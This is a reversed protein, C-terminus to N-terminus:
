EEDDDYAPAKQGEPAVDPRYVWRDERPGDSRPGRRPGAARPSLVQGSPRFGSERLSRLHGIVAPVGIQLAERVVWSRTMGFEQAILDLDRVQRRSVNVKLTRDLPEADPAYIPSM